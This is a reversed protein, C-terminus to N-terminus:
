LGRPHPPSITHGSAIVYMAMPKGQVLPNEAVMQFCHRADVFAEEDAADM